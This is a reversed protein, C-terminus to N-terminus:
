NISQGNKLRERVDKPSYPPFKIGKSILLEKTKIAWGYAKFKPTLLNRSLKKNIRNAITAGVKNPYHYDAGLEILRFTIEFKNLSTSYLASNDNTKNTLNLDAGADLLMNIHNWNDHGIARFIVPYANHDVANANGGYKLLLELIKDDGDGVIYAIPHDNNGSIFNPDAGLQLALEIANLDKNIILFFLPTIGEKGYSNLNSGNKILQKSTFKDGKEIENLLLAMNSDFYNNKKVKGGFSCASTFCLSLILLSRNFCKLNTLLKEKVDM